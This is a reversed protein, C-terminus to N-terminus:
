AKYVRHLFNNPNTMFPANRYQHVARLAHNVLFHIHLLQITVEIEKGAVFEIRGGSRANEVALALPHLGHRRIHAASFHDLVDSQFFGAKSGQGSFELGAGLVEIGRGGQNGGHGKGLGAPLVTGHLLLLLGNQFIHVFLYRTILQYAQESRGKGGFDGQEGKGYLAGVM